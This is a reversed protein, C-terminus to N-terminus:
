YYPHLTDPPRAPKSHLPQWEKAGMAKRGLSEGPKSIIILPQAPMAGFLRTLGRAKRGATEWPKGKIILPWALMANM